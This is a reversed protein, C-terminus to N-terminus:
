ACYCRVAAALPAFRPDVPLTPSLYLAMNKDDLRSLLGLVKQISEGFAAESSCKCCVRVETKM